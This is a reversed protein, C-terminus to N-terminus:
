PCSGATLFRYQDIPESHSATFDTPLKVSYGGPILVLEQKVKVTVKFVGDSKWDTGQFDPQSNLTVKLQNQM